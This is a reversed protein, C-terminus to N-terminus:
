ANLRTLRRPCERGLGKWCLFKDCRLRRPDAYTITGSNFILGVKGLCRALQKKEDGAEQYVRTFDPIYTAFLLNLEKQSRASILNGVLAAFRSGDRHLTGLVHHLCFLHLPHQTGVQKLAPGQDSELFFPTLDINLDTRFFTYLRNYLEFSEKPGFSIALPIGVNHSVALLIATHYHNMVKFTTDLIIGDIIHRQIVSKAQPAVWFGSLITYDRGDHRYRDRDRRGEPEALELGLFGPLQLFLEMSHDARTPTTDTVSLAARFRELANSRARMFEVPFRAAVFRLPFSFNEHVHVLSDENRYISASSERMPLQGEFRVDVVERTKRPTNRGRIDSHVITTETTFTWIDELPHKGVPPAEDAALRLPDEERLAPDAPEEYVQDSPVLFDPNPKIWGFSVDVRPPPTLDHGDGQKCRDLPWMIRVAVDPLSTNSFTCTFVPGDSYMEIRAGRTSHWDNGLNNLFIMLKPMSWGSRRADDCPFIPTRGQLKRSPDLTFRGGYKMDCTGDFGNPDLRTALDAMFNLSPRHM